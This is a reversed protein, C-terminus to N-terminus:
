VLAAQAAAYDTDSVKELWDASGGPGKLQMAIHAMAQAATGGHWHEEGPEFWVADGARVMEAPAGRRQVLGVGGVIYLTQGFPHTHWATRAGAPFRVHLVMLPPETPTEAIPEQWVDGTFYDPNAARGPVETARTIRM